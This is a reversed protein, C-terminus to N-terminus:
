KGLGINGAGFTAIPQGQMSSGVGVYVSAKSFDLPLSGIVPIAKLTNHIKAAVTYHTIACGLEINHHISGLTSGTFDGVYAPGFSLKLAPKPLYVNICSIEAALGPTSGKFGTINVVGSAKLLYGFKFAVDVPQQINAAGRVEELGLKLEKPRFDFKFIADEDAYASLALISGFVLTAILKTNWM